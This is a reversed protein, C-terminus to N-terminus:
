LSCTASRRPMSRILAQDSKEREAEEEPRAFINWTNYNVLAHPVFRHRGGALELLPLMVAQDCCTDIWSGDPRRFDREDLQQFLGARFTRLHTANWPASRYSGAAIVEPSYDDAFSQEGTPWFRLNGYTVQLSPDTAYTDRIVELARPHALHDDADLWVVITSPPLASIISVLNEIQTGVSPRFDVLCGRRISRAADQAYRLAESDDLTVIHRVAVTQEGVSRVCAPAWEKIAAGTSVVVMGPDTVDLNGYGLTSGWLQRGFVPFDGPAPHGLIEVAESRNVGRGFYEGADIQALKTRSVRFHWPIFSRAPFIKLFRDTHSARTLCEPGAAIWGPVGPERHRIQQLCRWWVPAGPISGLADCAILGPILTENEYCSWCIPELFREDLPRICESDAGICVGGLELLIQYRIADAKASMEDLSGVLPALEPWGALTRVREDTWLRFDWDPHARRWTEIAATPPPNPNPRKELWIVHMIKPIM